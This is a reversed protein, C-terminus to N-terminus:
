TGPARTPELLLLIGAMLDSTDRVERYLNGVETVRHPEVPRCTGFDGIGLLPATRLASIYVETREHDGEERM